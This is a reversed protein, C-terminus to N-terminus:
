AQWPPRDGPPTHRSAVREDPTGLGQDRPSAFRFGFLVAATPTDHSHDGVHHRDHDHGSPATPEDEDDHSHGHHDHGGDSMVASLGHAPTKGSGAALAFAAVAACLAVVILMRALQAIRISM